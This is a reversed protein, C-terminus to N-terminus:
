YDLFMSNVDMLMSLGERTAKVVDSTPLQSNKLYDNRTYGYVDRNDDRDYGNYNADIIDHYMQSEYSTSMLSNDMPRNDIIDEQLSEHYEQLIDTTKTYTCLNKNIGFRGLDFGYKLVYLTHLYAMVMDDHEGAMAQMKGKVDVLNMIDKVLYKTNILHKYDHVTERLINFMTKRVPGTVNTGYYKKAEARRVMGGKVDQPNTVNKTLEAARPDHYFRNMLHPSEQVFDIIDVGTMNAELCFLARPIMKALITVCRMLDLGGMLPSLLEGVVELTYPHVICFTTNDGNKGTACDIGILYPVNMDFYPTRSTLDPYSINHKYVFLDYKDMLKICYDPEHIHQAIYDLDAQQFFSGGEGRFRQLLVGRRYEGISQNKVAEFYQTRLWDADKRLQIYNFEIYFMSIPKRNPADGEKPTVRKLDELEATTMDYYSEDFVPLEDIIGQWDKGEQTELDGPTSAYMMCSPLGQNKATIRAQAITPGAGDLVAKMFPVFECEDFFGTFLSYGRSKDSADTERRAASVVAVSVHHEEYRLSQAGPPHKMKGWPNLYKPLAMIYDRLLRVNDACRTETKHMYMIDINQYVFLVMYSMIATLMTTKYTQRPQVLEFDFSHMFCWAAACGARHLYLSTKSGGRIPVNIVERLYYWPNDKCEILIRGIQERTLNPSYPDLDFIGFEPHKVELMFYWNKRGLEKLEKATLLFSSNRTGFDYYRPIGDVDSLQVINSM